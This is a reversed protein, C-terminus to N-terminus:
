LPLAGINYWAGDRWVWEDSSEAFVEPIVITRLDEFFESQWGHIYSDIANSNIRIDFSGATASFSVTKDEIPITGGFVFEGSFVNREKDFRTVQIEFGSVEAVGNGSQYNYGLRLDEEKVVVKAGSELDKVPLALYLPGLGFRSSSGAEQTSFSGGLCTRVQLSDGADNYTAILCKYSSLTVNRVARCFQYNEVQFVLTNAGTNPRPDEQKTLLWDLGNRCSFLLFTILLIVSLRLVQKM